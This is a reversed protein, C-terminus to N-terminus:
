AKAMGWMIEFNQRFAEAVENQRILIAIPDHTWVVIAVNDGYIYQSTPSKNLNKLWRAKCLPLRKIKVVHAKDTADTADFLMRTSIGKEKRLLHYRPLYHKLIDSIRVNTAMVLVEKGERVQDQFVLRLGNLGRYFVTEKRESLAAYKKVYEPLKEEYEKTTEVLKEHIRNPSTVSYVKRNNEQMYRVLGKQILRELADYVNRRHIGTKQSINGTWSAGENLLMTYIRIELETCGLMRLIEDM